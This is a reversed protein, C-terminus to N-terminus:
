ACDFGEFGGGLLKRLADEHSSIGNFFKMTAERFAKIDPYYKNYLVNKKFYRWVREILNLEPSYPPLFVLNFRPNEQLYEKVKISYHYRANDLVIHLKKALPYKQNLTEFLEITADADITKSEIVTVQMTEINIAGHFNIRQRGSNTKLHRKCGRKMWGYAAMTNHEPHVADVFLVAEDAAKKQMFQEYHSVFDEQADRDPNGPVLKPKKFVYGIRHLLDRMGTLSYTVNFNVSVYEIISHTTLHITTDLEICLANEQSENLLSVRGSYNTELLGNIGGESYKKIYTRLTEDDILLAEKVENIRWGQGLLIIANLRYASRKNREARHAAKLQLLQNETLTFSPM